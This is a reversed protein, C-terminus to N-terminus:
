EFIDSEPKSPAIAFLSILLTLPFCVCISPGFLAILFHEIGVFESPGVSIADFYLISLIAPITAAALSLAAIRILTRPWALTRFALLAVFVALVAPLVLHLGILAAVLESGQEM